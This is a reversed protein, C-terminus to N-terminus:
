SHDSLAALACAALSAAGKALASEDVDFNPHHHERAPTLAAGLWFFCGPAERALIAFDEAGMMPEFSQVNEGGLTSRVANLATQTARADNIVPPYGHRLDLEVKGGLVDGVRCASELERHLVNRVDEDFYRVTGRMMVSDALINEATGGEIMGITLVGEQRPALRRAVANQCALIVHSALVIADVGEHPRAAHAAKGRVSATFIDSGAMISGPSIFAIGSSLHAGIHIGFVADVGRMAGDEVMRTAGSKNDSDSAEESPQFLLRVTGTPMDGRQRADAILRAAGVLMSMHADHGCAHMVGPVTSRYSVDNTEQIPLADMDARLAIVPGAGNALEAVVGTRGVGTRVTWGLAGTLTALRAATGTEAFSLEPTQHLSRRLDILEAEFGRARDLLSTMSM